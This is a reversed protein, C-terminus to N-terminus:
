CIVNGTRTMFVSPSGGRRVQLAHCGKGSLREDFHDVEAAEELERRDVEQLHPQIM